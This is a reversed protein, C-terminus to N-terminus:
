AVQPKLFKLTFTTGSGLKTKFEITGYMGEVMNKVMALGLGTGSSKTTFNPVFIKNILHDPIGIGNDTISILYDSKNDVLKIKVVGSRDEPIAQIANKILNSFIRNLQDKDGNIEIPHQPMDIEFFMNATQSYLDVTHQIVDGLNLIGFDPKPMKAFNSFETAINSLTEIQEILTTSIRKIMEDKNPHNDNWARQLHQVGLKMPTLPNKIEHAVQKAMERWASERESKALLDASLQLEQVMRNYENILAGIEDNKNWQIPKNTSGFKTSRLSQQIIRLPATIRNSIFLAILIAASFLFVYINILAVLFSSIDKKLEIERAFYPLNLYGITKNDSNRIPEYAAIFSLKGINEIQLYMAKQNSTLKTFALRNMLPAMLQQDYIKPQSTFLLSGNLGYINFDTALTTALQSLSYQIDDNIMANTEVRQGLNNEVLQLINNLKERTKTKQNQEYNKYIYWVTTFGTLLLTAVVISVVTLQIRSKFNIQLKFGSQVWRTALYFLLFVLSFVTFLYSFLTIFVIIGQVPYSIIILSDTGFNYFLHSYNDFTVFRMGALGRYSEEYPAATLFYNFPGSQNLLKGRQFRAYSYNSLDNRLIVKNSLLLDPFGNEEQVHRSNLEIILIGKKNSDVMLDVRGLYSIRGNTNPIFSFNDNSTPRGEEKFVKRYVDLDWSPDGIKNIPIENATFYKFSVEYRSLYGNFYQRILKRNLDDIIGRNNVVYQPSKNFFIFLSQDKALRNYIDDFLYEAVLDQESEIKAALLQRKEHEKTINFSYIMQAAYLSFGLIVLITKSFSFLSAELGRVYSIFLILSNALLFASVGYDIFLDTTRFSLLCILFIGQSILFLIANNAFTFNSKRIYQIGVDCIFYFGFLLLGIILLGVLSYASLEFVNTINFSIQSNIILGSLLYNILVSFLFTGFFILVITTFRKGKNGEIPLFKIKRNLFNYLFVIVLLFVLTTLLLDGLSNLLFSSAYYKPSFLDHSYLPVPIRFEIMLYRIMVICGVIIFGFVSKKHGFYVLLDLLALAFFTIGLGYLVVIWWSYAKENQDQSFGLSFLYQGAKNSIAWTGARPLTIFRTDDPINFSSNYSNVLYKNQIAYQYKIPLLAILERSNTRRQVVYYWGNGIFNIKDPILNARVIPDLFTKNDSWYHLLNQDYVFMSAQDPLSESSIKAAIARENLRTNKLLPAISDAVAYLRDIQKHLISQTNNALESFELAHRDESIKLFTALGLSFLGLIFLWFVRKKFHMSTLLLLIDM